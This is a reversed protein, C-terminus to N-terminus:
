PRAPGKVKSLVPKRAKTGAPKEIENIVLETLGRQHAVRLCEHHIADCLFTNLSVGTHAALIKAARHTTDHLNQIEIKM